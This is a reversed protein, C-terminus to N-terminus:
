GPSASGGVGYVAISQGAASQVVNLVAGARPLFFFVSLQGSNKWSLRGRSAASGSSTTQSPAGPMIRVIAPIGV